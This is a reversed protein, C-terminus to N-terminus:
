SKQIIEWHGNKDSGVRKIIHKKKLKKINNEIATTSISVHDSMELITIRPNDQIADFIKKENVGLKVGLKVNLIPRMFVVTFLGDTKYVPKQQGINELDKMIRGNM